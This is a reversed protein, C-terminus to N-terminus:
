QTNRYAKQRASLPGITTNTPPYGKTKGRERKKVRILWEMFLYQQYVLCRFKCVRHNMILIVVCMDARTQSPYHECPACPAGRCKPSQELACMDKSHLHRPRFMIREVKTRISPHARKWVQPCGKREEGTLRSGGIYSGSLNDKEEKDEEGLSGLERARSAAVSAVRSSCPIPCREHM